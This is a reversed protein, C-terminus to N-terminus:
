VGKLRKLCPSKVKKEYLAELYYLYRLQCPQTVGKGCSFRQHGFLKLCDDINDFFGMYLLIAAIASGTRGKGANCHVVLVNNRDAVCLM